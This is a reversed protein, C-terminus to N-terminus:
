CISLIIVLPYALSRIHYYIASLTDVLPYSALLRIAYQFFFAVFPYCPFLSVSQQLSRTSLTSVIQQLVLLRTSYTMQIAMHLM